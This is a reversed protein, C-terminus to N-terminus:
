ILEPFKASHGDYFTRRSTRFKRCIAPTLKILRYLTTHRNLQDAAEEPTKFFGAHYDIEAYWTNNKDIVLLAFM